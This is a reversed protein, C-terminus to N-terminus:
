EGEYLNCIDSDKPIINLLERCHTIVLNEKARTVGVYIIKSLEIEKEEKEEDSLNELTFKFMDTSCGPMIVNDFELGKIAYYNSIFVGRTRDIKKTDRDIITCPINLNELLNKYHSIENKKVIICTSGKTSFENLKNIIYDDEAFENKFSAIIPKSGEKVSNMSILGDDKELELKERISNALKEIQKTNRHNEDLTYVKRIKLGLQKWPIRGKGFIQQGQDGLYLISGNEGMYNVISKIMMPSFDQGEDIIICEYYPNPHNDELYKNLYYACDDWDYRKNMKRRQEIYEQYIKFVFERDTKVLRASKRGSREINEYEEKSSVGFGEIWKIEDEFFEIDRKFLSKEPYLKEVNKIAKKILDKKNTLIENKGLIKYKRMCGTAFKHYTTIDVGSLDENMDKMYNILSNNYTLLLVKKNTLKHIYQARMVACVSKGSGAVGCVVGHGNQPLYLIEQQKGKLEFM